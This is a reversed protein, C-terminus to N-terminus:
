HALSSRSPPRDLAREVIGAIKDPHTESVDLFILDALGMAVDRGASGRGHPMIAFIRKGLAKAAGVEYLANKGEGSEKPVVFVVLEADKLVDLIADAYNDGAVLTEEDRFVDFGKSLLAKTLEKAYERDPRAYSIFLTM